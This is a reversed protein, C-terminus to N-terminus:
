PFNPFIFFIQCKQRRKRISWSQSNNHWFCINPIVNKIQVIVIINAQKIFPEVVTKQDYNPGLLGKVQGNDTRTKGVADGSFFPM